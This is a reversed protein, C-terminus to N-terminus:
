VQIGIGSSQIQLGIHWWQRSQLAFSTVFYDFRDIYISLTVSEIDTRRKREERIYSNKNQNAAFEFLVKVNFRGQLYRQPQNKFNDMNKKPVHIIRRFKAM